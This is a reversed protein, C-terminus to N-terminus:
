KLLKPNILSNRILTDALVNGLNNVEKEDIEISLEVCIAHIMEHFITEIIDPKGRGKQYVRITRTLPDYSGFLNERKDADVEIMSDKYLVKYLKSLINLETIKM